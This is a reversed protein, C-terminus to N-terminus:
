AVTHDGATGAGPKKVPRLPVGVRWGGRWGWSAETWTETAKGGQSPDLTHGQPDPEPQKRANEAGALGLSDGGIGGHPGGQRRNGLGRVSM